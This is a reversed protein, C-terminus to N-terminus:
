IRFQCYISRMYSRPMIPIPIIRKFITVPHPHQDEYAIPHVDYKSAIPNVIVLITLRFLLAKKIYDLYSVSYFGKIHILIYM